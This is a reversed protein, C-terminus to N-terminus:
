ECDWSLRSAEATSSHLRGYCKDHGNKPLLWSFSRLGWSPLMFSPYLQFVKQEHTLAVVTVLCWHKRERLMSTQKHFIQLMMRLGRMASCSSTSLTKICWWVFSKTKHYLYRHIRTLGRRIGAVRELQAPEKGVSKKAGKQVVTVSNPKNNMILIKELSEAVARVHSIIWPRIAKTSMLVSFLPLCFDSVYVANVQLFYIYIFAKFFHDNQATSWLDKCIAEVNPHLFQEVVKSTLSCGFVASMHWKKLILSGTDSEMNKLSPCAKQLVSSASSAFTM